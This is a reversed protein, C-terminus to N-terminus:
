TNIRFLLFELIEHPSFGEFGTADYRERMRKRHDKHICVSDPKKAEKMNYVMKRETKIMYIISFKKQFTLLREM